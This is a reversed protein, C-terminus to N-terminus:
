RIQSCIGLTGGNMQLIITTYNIMDVMEKYTTLRFFLMLVFIVIVFISSNELPLSRYHLKVQPDM